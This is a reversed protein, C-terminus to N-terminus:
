ADPTGGAVFFTTFVISVLVSLLTEGHYTEQPPRQLARGKRPLTRRRGRLLGTQMYARGLAYLVVVRVLYTDEQGQLQMLVIIEDDQIDSLSWESLCGHALMTIRVKLFM